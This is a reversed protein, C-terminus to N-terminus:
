CIYKAQMATFSTAFTASPFSQRQSHSPPATKAAPLRSNQETTAELKVQLFGGPPNQLSRRTLLAQSPWKERDQGEESWRLGM